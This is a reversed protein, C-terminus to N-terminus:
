TPHIINFMFDIIHNNLKYFIVKLIYKNFFLYKLHLDNLNKLSNFLM